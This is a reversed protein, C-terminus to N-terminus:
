VELRSYDQSGFLKSNRLWLLSGWRETWWHIREAMRADCGSVEGIPKRDKFSGGGGQATSSTYIIYETHKLLKAQINPLWCLTLTRLPYQKWSRKLHRLSVQDSAALPCEFNPKTAPSQLRMQATWCGHLGQFMALFTSIWPLPNGPWLNSQHAAPISDPSMPLNHSIMRPHVHTVVVSWFVNSLKSTAYAIWLDELAWALLQLYSAASSLYPYISCCHNQVGPHTSVKTGCYVALCLSPWGHVLVNKGGVRQTAMATMTSRPVWRKHGTSPSHCPAEILPRLAQFLNQTMGLQAHLFTIIYLM